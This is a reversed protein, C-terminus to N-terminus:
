ARDREGSWRHLVPDLAWRGAGHTALLLGVLVLLTSPLAARVGEQADVMTLAVVFNFACVLGAWRTILGLTFASGCLLQAWVSLPAMQEPYAFGHHQLFIRFEEMREPNAVNDWVGWILFGGVVLRLALLSLDSGRQLDHLFLLRRVV